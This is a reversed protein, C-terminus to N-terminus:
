YGFILNQTLFDGNILTRLSSCLFPLFYPLFQHSGRWTENTSVGTFEVCVRGRGGGSGSGGSVLYKCFVIIVSVVRSQVPLLLLLSVPDYIIIKSVLHESPQPYLVESFDLHCFFLRYLFQLFETDKLDFPVLGPSTLGTSLLVPLYVYSNDVKVKQRLSVRSPLLTRSWLFILQKKSCVYPIRKISIFM